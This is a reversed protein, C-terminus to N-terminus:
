GPSGPPATLRGFDGAQLDRASADPEGAGFVYVQVKAPRIVAGSEARLGPMLVGAVAGHRAPDATPITHDGVHLSPVLPDDEEPRVIEVRLSRIASLLRRRLEPSDVSFAANLLDDALQVVVTDALPLRDTTADAQLLATDSTGGSDPPHTIPPYSRERSRLLYWCATSALLTGVVAGILVGTLLM